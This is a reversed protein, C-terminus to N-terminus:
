AAVLDLLAGAKTEMEVRDAQWQVSRALATVATVADWVTEIPRQEDEQHAAKIRDVSKVGFHKALFEDADIKAKQAALLAQNISGTSSNAYALLAPELESLFREPAAKTHRLSIKEVETAGWVIRNCCVYDFLFSKINLSCAGVESQWLFFGRALTGTRGERRNPLEIRNKEDALFIFMDRDGAFLTTNDKTVVVDKGFEGPVKFRGTVGDGFHEIVSGIVDNNWIRGYDPGTVARVLNTGNKYLLVKLKSDGGRRYLGYNINDSALSAPLSRLYDAPAGARYCLQSFAWHTPVYGIGQSGLLQLGTEDEASLPAVHLTKMDVTHERCSNRVQEFHKQMELLSTFREDSPRTAWQNSAQMLTTM